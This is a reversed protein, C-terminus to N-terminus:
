LSMYKHLPPYLLVLVNRKTDMLSSYSLFVYLFTSCSFYSCFIYQITIIISTIRENTEVLSPYTIALIEKVRITEITPPIDQRLKTHVVGIIAM